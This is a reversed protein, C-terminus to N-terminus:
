FEYILDLRLAWSQWDFDKVKSKFKTTVDGIEFNTRDSGGGANWHAYNASLFFSWEPWFNWGIGVNAKQAHGTGKQRFHYTFVNKEKVKGKVRYHGWHYEFGAHFWWCDCFPLELDLGAFPTRWLPNYHTNIRGLDSSSHSSSHSGPIKVRGRAEAIIKDYSYGVLPIIRFGDCCNLWIPFGAAISTDFTRGDIDGKRHFHKEPFRTTDIEVDGSLIISYDFNAKFFVNYETYTAINVGFLYSNVNSWKMKNVQEIGRHGKNRTRIDDHRYGVRFGIPTDELDDAYLSNLAAFCAIFALLYKKM